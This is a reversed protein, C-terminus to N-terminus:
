FPLGDPGLGDEEENQGNSTRTQVPGAPVTMALGKLREAFAMKQGADMKTKLRIAGDGLANVWQVKFRPKGELDAETGVEISVENPLDDITLASLDVGQWGMFRLSEITRKAAKESFFGYWVITAGELEGEVIQFQVAIQDTGTGTVGFDFGRAIAVFHGNRM